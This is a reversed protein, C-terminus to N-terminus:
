GRVKVFDKIEFPLKHCVNFVDVNEALVEIEGTPMGKNEQGAPRQRVTGTVKIVSEVTLDCLVAKLHSASEEQPFLIQTLGSFDRLIVFLDHRLYQVWGCLTVREGVHDPRLEGCTHSM